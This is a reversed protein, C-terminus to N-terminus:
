MCTRGVFVGSYVQKGILYHYFEHGKPVKEVTLKVPQLVLPHRGVDVVYEGNPVLRNMWSEVKKVAVTKGDMCLVATIKAPADLDFMSMQEYGM